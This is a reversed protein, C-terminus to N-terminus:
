WLPSNSELFQAHRLVYVLTQIWCCSPVDKTTHICENYLDINLICM